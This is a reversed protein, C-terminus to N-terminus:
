PLLLTFNDFEVICEDGEKALTVFVGVNGSQIYSNQINTNVREGNVFLTFRNGEAHVALTNVEGHKAIDRYHYWLTHWQEDYYASLALYRTEVVEFIYARQPSNRFLLGYGADNPGKIKKVDVSLYLDKYSGTLSAELFVGQLAKMNWRYVGRSISRTGVIYEDSVKQTPWGGPSDFSHYIRLRAEPLGAAAQAAQATSTSEVKATATRYARQTRTAIAGATSTAIVQASATATTIDSTTKFQATASGATAEFQATGTQQAIATQTAQTIIVWAGGSLAVVCLLLVVGSAILGIIIKRQIGPSQQKPESPLTTQEM